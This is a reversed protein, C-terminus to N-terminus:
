KLELIKNIIWSRYRYVPAYLGYANPQACKYGSSMIGAEYWYDDGKCALGAGSDYNCGDKGGEKHGACLINEPITGNYASEANCEKNSVVPMKVSQLLNSTAGGINGYYQKYGWGAIYCNSSEGDDKPGILCLSNINDSFRLPKSLELIAIDHPLYAFHKGSTKEIVYRNEKSLRIIRKIGRIQQGRENGDMSTHGATISWDKPNLSVYDKDFGNRATLIFNESLITGVCWLTSKKQNLMTANISVVWPWEGLTSTTGGIIRKV